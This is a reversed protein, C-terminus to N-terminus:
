SSAPPPNGGQDSLHKELREVVQRVTHIGEAEENPITLNFADELKYIIAIGALSDLRLEEFTSDLTIQEAPIGKTAAIVSIVTDAVM